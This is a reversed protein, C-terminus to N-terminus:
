ALAGSLSVRPFSNMVTFRSANVVHVGAQKLPEALAAFRMLFIPYPSDIHLGPKYFWNQRGEPGSWMDFGLLVIKTAGHHVALNVAQYGSNHGTRLGAPDTELGEDGTNRLVQVDPWAWRQPELAYKTGAFFPYGKHHYWWKDDCAYLVDAWPALEIAEKIAIVRIEPADSKLHRRELRRASARVGVYDVDEPTLSSGGGIIVVTAGPWARPVVATPEVLQLLTDTM